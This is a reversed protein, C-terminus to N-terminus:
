SIIATSMAVDSQMMVTLYWGLTLLLPLEPMDVATPDVEVAANVHFVGGMTFRVLTEGSETAWQLNSRWVSMDARVRRGDPLELTGGGSWTQNKFVALDSEGGCARITLRTQLFGVRKFTWCGDGCHATALTGFASRFALTGAVEDDARLEYRRDFASPQIWKLPRGGLGSLPTM